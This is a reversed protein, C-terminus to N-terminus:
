PLRCGIAQANITTASAVTCQWTSASVPESDNISGSGIGCGGGTMRHTSPVTVECVTATLCTVLFEQCVLPLDKLELSGVGDTAIETETVGGTAIDVATVTGDLIHAGTVGGTAISLTLAGTTGGGTLGSGAATTIGTITGGSNNDLECTVTGNAAVANIASGAPCTGSVRLQVISSDVSLTVAGSTGGGSLGSGPTVGTITGDDAECIVSGDQNVVRIAQGTPCTGTVRNQVVSSSVSLAVDGSTGGGVLGTGATVGTLFDSPAAGGLLEADGAVGARIAYPVSELAIRPLMVTGDMTIELYLASGDLIGADLTTMNGLEVFLLGADVNVVPQSETWVETGAGPLDFIRFVFSHVGTVPTGADDLRATLSLKQPVTAARPTAPAALAVGLVLALSAAVKRISRIGRVDNM